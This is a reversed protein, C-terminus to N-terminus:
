QGQHRTGVRALCSRGAVAGDAIFGLWRLNRWDPQRFPLNDVTSVPRGSKGLIELKWRGPSVAPATVRYTTWQDVNVPAVVKGDVMVGNAAIRLSPGARYPRNNDRWEHVMVASASVKLAFEVVTSGEGYTLTAFAFPEYRREFRESDNFALCRDGPTDPDAEIRIADAPAKPEYTLGDPRSGIAGGAIDINLNAAPAIRAVPAEVVPSLPQPAASALAAAPARAAAGQRGSWAAVARQVIASEPGDIQIDVPNASAKPAPPGCRDGTCPSGSRHRATNATWNIEPSQPQVDVADANAPALFNQEVRLNTGPDIRAVQIENSNAQAFVNGRVQNNKGYHLRFGGSDTGIVVNGDIVADSTGEDAYIGWAGAGYDPYGRVARIINNSIVTGPSRGLTYIGGLDALQRQGINYLLNGSILNRGSTAEGYGWSWGVSIGTYTTDRITNRTIKNDWSQGVWLAPAGPFVKGTNDIRNEAIEIAGTASTDSPAQKELGVKIGGAGLDTLTCRRVASDRVGEGFWIGWGGTKSVNCDEITVDRAQSVEIAASIATAAQSDTFGDAPTVYRAHAFSLGALRLHGVPRGRDGRIIILKELAPLVPKLPKGVEDARAIYRVEAQDYLWEGPADLAAAVNEVFYRQSAGGESLFPWRAQPRIRVSNEPAPQDSIRYQGTTWSHYVEVIARKKDAASLGAIWRLNEAAPAFAAAGRRNPPDGPLSVAKGVFWNDGANPQRALTARRGNVYLQSGGAAAAADAPAPFSVAAGTNPATRPGLELGGTILVTGPQRAEYTVPATADGSDLPTFTLPSALSYQGPGILVRVPGRPASGAAMAATRARALVQARELSRVPNAKDGAASDAGAAEVAIVFEDAVAAAHGPSTFGLTIGCALLCAFLPSLAREPM